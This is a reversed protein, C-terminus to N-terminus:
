PAGDGANSEHRADAYIDRYGDVWRGLDAWAELRRRAAAGLARRAEADGHLLRVEEALAGPDEPPVLRVADEALDPVGGVATAVVPRAAAMAELLVIPTGETRSSLVVVDFATLHRAAGAVPGHMRVRDGLGLEAVRAELSERLAGEGVFSATWSLGPIRALAELFVDPGKERSLRGVWGLHFGDPELGLARRAEEAGLPEEDPRWANPHLHIRQPDVGEAELERALPRSVPVVADFRRFSRMQLTEYLRMKWGTSRSFGHVTTVVPLGLRRAVGADVVDPRFGHTHVVDPDVEGLLKALLRRERLYGRAPVQFVRVPVERATLQRVFPHDAPDGGPELVAVVTVRDGQAQQGDALAAVVSELGGFTAPATVHVISLPDPM